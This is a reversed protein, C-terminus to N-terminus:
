PVITLPYSTNAVLNTLFSTSYSWDWETFFDPTSGTEFLRCNSDTTNFTRNNLIISKFYNKPYISGYGPEQLKFNFGYSWTQNFDDYSSWYIIRSIFAGKYTNPTLSSPAYNYGVNSNGTFLVYSLGIPKTVGRFDGVSIAGSTAIQVGSTGALTGSPVNAGGRYYEDMGIPSTGGFETQIDSLSINSTPTTM